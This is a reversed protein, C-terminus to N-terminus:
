LIHKLEAIVTDLAGKQDEFVYECDNCAQKYFESDGLLLEM